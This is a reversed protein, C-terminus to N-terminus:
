CGHVHRKLAASWILLLASAWFPPTHPATRRQADLNASHRSLELRVIAGEPIGRGPQVRGLGVRDLGMPLISSPSPCGPNEFANFRPSTGGNLSLRWACTAMGALPAVCRGVCGCLIQRGEIRRM